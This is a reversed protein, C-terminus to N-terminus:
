HKYSYRHRNTTKFYKTSADSRFLENRSIKRPTLSDYLVVDVAIKTYTSAEQKKSMQETHRRNTTYNIHADKVVIVNINYKQHNHM